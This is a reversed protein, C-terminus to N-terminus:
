LEGAIDYKFIADRQITRNETSGNCLLEGTRQKMTEDSSRGGKITGNALSSDISRTLDYLIYGLYPVNIGLNSLYNVM